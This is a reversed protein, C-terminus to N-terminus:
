PAVEGLHEDALTPTAAHAEELEADSKHRQVLFYYLCGIIFFVGIFEYAGFKFYWKAGYVDARPWAINFAVIAGYVVAFLNIAFGFRGLSFYPGHEARPWQGKIRRYLMSGTVALYPLYFMVIAVSTLTLFASQNALNIALLALACTGVFLAPVIPVKARGSVRALSNGGPLRGDRAMSFLM